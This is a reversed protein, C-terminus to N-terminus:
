PFVFTSITTSVDANAGARVRIDAAQAGVWRGHIQITVLRTEGAAVDHLEIVAYADTLRAADPTFSVDVFKDLYAQDVLVELLPMDEGSENTVAIAIENGMGAHMRDPYDVGLSLGPSEAAASASTEGFVGLLALIPILLLLPIAIYQYSYLELRREFDPPKPPEPSPQNQNSM